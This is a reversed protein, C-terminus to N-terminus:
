HNGNPPLIVPVSLSWTFTGTALVTTCRSPPNSVSFFNSDCDAYLTSTGTGSGTNPQGQTALVNGGGKCTATTSGGPSLTYSVPLTTM